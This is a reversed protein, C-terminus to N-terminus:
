QKLKMYVNSDLPQIDAKQTVRGEAVVENVPGGETFVCLTQSSINQMLVRHDRPLETGIEETGQRALDEALSFTVDVKQPDRYM